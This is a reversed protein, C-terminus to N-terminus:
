FKSEYYPYIKGSLKEIEKMVLETVFTCIEKDDHKDHHGNFYMAQGINIEVIKKLHPRKHNKAMVDYTGKIGVPIIPIHHKLAFYAIGTFAKLMEEKHPSRTGEPFIGILKGKAAHKEVEEYLLHKDNENRNVRIQGTSLMLIRWLRHEFFKEASLFHINRPAISAFCLFDFFSQHNFSIIAAGKLPINQLGTVQKILIPRIIAGIIKRLIWYTVAIFPHDSDTISAM